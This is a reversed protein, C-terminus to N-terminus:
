GNDSNYDLSTNHINNSTPNLRSFADANSHLKGKRYIIEFNYEFLTIKWRKLRKNMSESISNLLWKLATYDTVITFKSGYLYHRFYKVAWVIALCELETIAYNKEAPNLTRSAYAIVHEQTEEKQALVAGVGTGSADTHLLFSKTFDPYQVIPAKTLKERLNEFAQQQSDTWEYPTDKKLLQYLPDALQAFDKIFRRYYFFLGLVERLERINKPEPYNM